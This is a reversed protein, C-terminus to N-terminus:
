KAFCDSRTLSNSLERLAEIFADDGLFTFEYRRVEQDYLDVLVRDLDQALM